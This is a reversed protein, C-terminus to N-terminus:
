ERQPTLVVDNTLTRESINVCLRVLRLTGKENNLGGKVTKGLFLKQNKRGIIIIIIM